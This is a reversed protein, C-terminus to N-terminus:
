PGIADIRVGTPRSRTVVVAGHLAEHVDPDDWLQLLDNLFEATELAGEAIRIRPAAGQLWVSAAPGLRKTDLFLTASRPEDVPLDLGDFPALYAESADLMPAGARVRERLAHLAVPSAGLVLWRDVVAFAPRSLHLNMTLALSWTRGAPADAARVEPAREAVRDLLRTLAAPDKTEVICLTTPLRGHVSQTHLLMVEGGLLADLARRADPPVIEAFREEVEEAELLGGLLPNLQALLHGIRGADLRCSLAATVEDDVLAPAAFPANLASLPNRGTGGTGAELWGRLAFRGGVGRVHLALADYAALADTFLERLVVEDARLFAEDRRLLRLNSYVFLSGPPPSVETWAKAFRPDDALTGFHRDDMRDLAAVIPEPRRAGFLVGGREAIVLADGGVTRLRVLDTSRHSLVEPRGVVDVPLVAAAAVAGADKGARAAAVFAAVLGQSPDQEALLLVDPRPRGGELAYGEVSLALEGAGTALVRPAADLVDAPLFLSLDSTLGLLSQRAFAAEDGSLARAVDTRRARRLFANRDDVRLFLRTDRSVLSALRSRASTAAAVDTLVVLSALVLPGLWSRRM